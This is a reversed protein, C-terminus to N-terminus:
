HWKSGKEIQGAGVEERQPAKKPAPAGAHQAGAREVRAREAAARRAAEVGADYDKWPDSQANAKAKQAEAEREQQQMRIENPIIHYKSQEQPARKARISLLWCGVIAALPPLLNWVPEVVNASRPDNLYSNRWAFLLVAAAGLFSLAAGSLIRDHYTHSVGPFFLLKWSRRRKQRIAAIKQRRTRLLAEMVKTSSLGSIVDACSRCLRIGLQTDACATCTPKGCNDCRGVLWAEPLKRALIMAAAVSALLLMWLRDFPFFLYPQLMETLLIGRRTKGEATAISWLEGSRFGQEYVAPNRLSMAPHASRYSEIGLTTARELWDSSQAFLMKKIYTQGINYYAVANTSDIQLASQYGALAKDYDGQMFYVNGLNVFAPAFRNELSVSELLYAQA